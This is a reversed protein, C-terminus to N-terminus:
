YGGWARGECHQGIFPRRSGGDSRPLPGTAGDDAHPRQLSARAVQTGRKCLRSRRPPLHLGKSNQLFVWTCRSRDQPLCVVAPWFVLSSSRPKWSLDRFLLFLRATILRVGLALLAALIASCLPRSVALLVDRLSIPTGHVCWLIHPIVWLTLVASYALAVGRPGFPLGIVYGTIMIMALIPGAKVGRAVLGISFILWEVSQYGIRRPM